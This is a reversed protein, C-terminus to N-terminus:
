VGNNLPPYIGKFKAEADTLQKILATQIIQAHEIMSVKEAIKLDRLKAEAEAAKQKAQLAELRKRPNYRDSLKRIEEIFKDEPMKQEEATM